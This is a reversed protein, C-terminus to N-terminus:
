KEDGKPQGRGRGGFSSMMESRGRVVHLKKFARKSPLFVGGGMDGERHGYTITRPALWSMLLITVPM